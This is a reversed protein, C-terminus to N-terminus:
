ISTPSLVADSDKEDGKDFGLIASTFLDSLYKTGHNFKKIQYTRNNMKTSFTVEGVYSLKDYSRAVRSM